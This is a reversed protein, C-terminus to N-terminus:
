ARLSTDLFQLNVESRCFLFRFRFYFCDRDSLSHGDTFCDFSAALSRLFIRYSTINGACFTKALFIFTRLCKIHRIIRGSCTAIERSVVAFHCSRANANSVQHDNIFLCVALPFGSASRKSNEQQVRRPVTINRMEVAGQRQQFLTRAVLKSKDCPAKAQLRRAAVEPRCGGTLLRRNCAGKRSKIAHGCNFATRGTGPLCRPQKRKKRM